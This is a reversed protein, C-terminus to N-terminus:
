EDLGRTIKLDDYLCTMCLRYDTYIVDECHCCDCIGDEAPTGYLAESLCNECLEKGDLSYLEEEQGCVDCYYRVTRRRGCNICYDPCGVCEDSIEKM